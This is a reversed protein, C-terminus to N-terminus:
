FNISTIKKKRKSKKERTKTKLKDTEWTRKLNFKRKIIKEKRRKDRMTFSLKNKNSDSISKEKCKKEKNREESKKWKSISNKRLRKRLSKSEWRKSSSKKRSFNLISSSLLPGNMMTMAKSKIFLNRVSHAPKLVKPHGPLKVKLKKMINIEIHHFKAENKHMKTTEKTLKNSKSKPNLRKLLRRKM